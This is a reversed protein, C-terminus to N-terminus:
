NTKTVKSEEGQIDGDQGGLTNKNQRIIKKAEAMSIDGRERMVIEEETIFGKSLMYEDKAIQDQVSKPYDPEKFDVILEDGLDIGRSQALIKEVYFFDKEFNRYRDIDDHYDEMRDFDKIRLALGSSPRDQNSDFNIYMHRSQALMEMQFKIFEIVKSLDGQPSVISFKGDQPLNIITDSGMRALPEDEYVGSAWPQGFMQFRLGLCAETFIINLHENVDVIDSAGEAFFDDIQEIDRTFVFPLVGLNHRVENIINGNSNYTIAYENDWYVYDCDQISYMDSQDTHHLKPYVISTPTYPDDDDFFVDFYYIPRHELCLGDPKEVFYVYTAITGLLNTMKEVHKMRSDKYRTLEEYNKTMTKTKLTRQPKSTYIRSMKDIFKRTINMHYRPIENFSEASFYDAIYNDSNTGTYYDILKQVYKRRYRSKESIFDSISQKIVDNAFM